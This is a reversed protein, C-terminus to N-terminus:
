IGGYLIDGTLVMLNDVTTGNSGTIVNTGPFLMPWTYGTQLYGMLNRDTGNVTAKVFRNGPITSLKFVSGEPLSAGSISEIGGSSSHSILDVTLTQNTYTNVIQITDTKAALYMELLFGAAESGPYDITLSGSLSNRSLGTISRYHPFPVYVSLTISPEKAFITPKNTRVVGELILVPHETTHYEITVKQKSMLVVNFEHRLQAISKDGRYFPSFGITYDVDRAEGKSSLYEEGDLIAYSSASIEADTPGMGEGDIDKLLYPSTLSYPDMTLEITRNFSNRLLVKTLM